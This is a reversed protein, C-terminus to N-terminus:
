ADVLRRTLRRGSHEAVVERGHLMRWNDIVLVEGRQLCHATPTVSSLRARIAELAAHGRADVAEVCERDYRLFRGDRPLATSYFSRRGNRILLPAGKLLAIEDATFGLTRWELTTTASGPHGPDACGLVVYRCPVSRHSLEVHLPLADLGHTASQSRPHAETRVRPVIAEQTAGARGSTPRGLLEAARDAAVAIEAECELSTAFRCWGYRELDTLLSDVRDGYAPPANLTEECIRLQM